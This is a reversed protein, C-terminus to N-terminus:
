HKAAAPPTIGSQMSLRCLRAVLGQLQLLSAVGDAVRMHVMGIEQRSVFFRTRVACSDVSVVGVWAFVNDVRKTHRVRLYELLLAEQM